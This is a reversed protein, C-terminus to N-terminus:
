KENKLRKIDSILQKVEKESTGDYYGRVRKKRDVLALKETHIFDEPGGDGDTVVVRFSNRALRYIDKKNGTLLNWNFPDVKYGKGYEVLQGVSDREPDVTFSNIIITPDKAFAEQVKYLNSTLKPCITVCHTFFFDVVAIKGDMNDLSVEKNEQNFFRYQKYNEDVISYYVPLKKIKKEYWNVIAFATAPVIFVLAVFFWISSQKRM